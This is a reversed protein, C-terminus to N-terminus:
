AIEYRSFSTFLGRRKRTLIIMKAGADDAEHSSIDESSFLNKKADDVTNQSSECEVAAAAEERKLRVAASELVEAEAFKAREAEAEAKAVREKEAKMARRAKGKNRKRSVM